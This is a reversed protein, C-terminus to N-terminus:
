EKNFAKGTQPPGFAKKRMHVRRTIPKINLALSRLPIQPKNIRGVSGMGGPLALPTTAATIM